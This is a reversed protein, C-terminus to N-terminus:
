LDNCRCAYPNSGSNTLFVRHIKSFVYTLQELIDGDFAPMENCDSLFIDGVNQAGQAPYIYGNNSLWLSTNMDGASLKYVYACLDEYYAESNYFFDLFLSSRHAACVELNSIYHIVLKEYQKETNSKM